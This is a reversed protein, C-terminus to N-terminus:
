MSKKRQTVKNSQPLFFHLEYNKLEYSMNRLDQLVGLFLEFTSHGQSCHPVFQTAIWFLFTLHPLYYFYHIHTYYRILLIAFETYKGGKSPNPSPKRSQKAGSAIVVATNEFRKLFFYNNQTVQIM